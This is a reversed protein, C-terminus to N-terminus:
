KVVVMVKEAQYLPAGNIRSPEFRWGKLSAIAADTFEFPGSVYAPFLATGDAAVFLQLVVRAGDAPPTKGSPAPAPAERVVRPPAVTVPLTVDQVGECPKAYHITTRAGAILNPVSYAIAIAGPMSPLGAALATIEDASAKIPSPPTAGRSDTVAVSEPAITEAGCVLPVAIVVMRPQGVERPLMAPDLPKGATAAARAALGILRVHDFVIGHKKSGDPDLSIPEVDAAGLGVAIERQQRTTEFPDPGPPALDMAVGCLLGAPAIPDAWHYADIYLTTKKGDLIEMSYIDLITSGDPTRTSGGRKFHTGEGAPGRLAILYRVERAGAYMAGGGVKVPNTLTLGYTEDTSIRCLSKEPTMGAVPATTTEHNPDGTQAAAGAPACAVAAAIVLAKSYTTVMPM